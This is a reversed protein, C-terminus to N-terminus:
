ELTQWRPTGDACRGTAFRTSRRNGFEPEVHVRFAIEYRERTTDALGQHERLWAGGFAGLTMSGADPDFWDGRSLDAELKSLALEADRKREYTDPASRRLGDPGYYRVQWRGCPLRRVNGFSRRRVM